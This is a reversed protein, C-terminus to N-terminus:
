NSADLVEQLKKKNKKLSYNPFMEDIPLITEFRSMVKFLKEYLRDVQYDGTFNDVLDLSDDNRFFVYFRDGPKSGPPVAAKLKTENTRESEFTRTSLTKKTSFRKMTEKDTINGALKVYKYYIDQLLYEKDDILAAIMEHLLDKFAPELTSSKLSSGKYITEFTGDDNKKHMIYNKAKLVIVCDYSGDHDM